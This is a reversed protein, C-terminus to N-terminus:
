IVSTLPDYTASASSDTGIRPPNPAEQNDGDNPSPAGSLTTHTEPEPTTTPPDAVGAEDEAADLDFKEATADWVADEDVQPFQGSKRLAIITFAVMMDMDGRELAAEIEPPTCGALRKIDHYDRNTLQNLDVTYSGTYPHFDKLNVVLKM